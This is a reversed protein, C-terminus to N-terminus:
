IKTLNKMGLKTLLSPAEFCKCSRFIPLWSAYEWRFSSTKLNQNSFNHFSIFIKFFPLIGIACVLLIIDPSYAPSLSSIAYFSISLTIVSTIFWNFILIPHGNNLKFIGSISKWKKQIRIWDYNLIFLFPFPGFDFINLSQM